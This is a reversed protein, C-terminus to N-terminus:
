IWKDNQLAQAVTRQKRIRESVVDVLNPFSSELSCGALWRDSWFRIQGGNDVQITVSANFM